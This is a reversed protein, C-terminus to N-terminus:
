QSIKQAVKFNPPQGIFFISIKQAAVAPAEVCGRFTKPPGEEHSPPGQQPRESFGLIKM